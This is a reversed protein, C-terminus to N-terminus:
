LLLSGPGRGPDSSGLFETQIGYKNELSACVENVVEAFHSARVGCIFYYGHLTLVHQYSLSYYLCYHRSYYGEIQGGSEYALHNKLDQYVVQQATTTKPVVKYRMRKFEAGYLVEWHLFVKM